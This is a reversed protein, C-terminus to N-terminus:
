QQEKINNLDQLIEAYAEAKARYVAMNTANASAGMRAAGERRLSEAYIKEEAKATKIKAQLSKKLDELTM